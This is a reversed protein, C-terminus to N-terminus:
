CEQHGFILREVYCNMFKNDPTILSRLTTLEDGYLHQMQEQSPIPSVKGWHVRPHFDDYLHNWLFQAANVVSEYELKWTWHVGIMPENPSPGMPLNSAAIPRLESIQLLNKFVFSVNNLSELVRPLDGLKVFYETHIEEGASSPPADPRFHYIKDYWMGYGSTM